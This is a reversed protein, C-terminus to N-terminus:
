SFTGRPSVTNWSTCSKYICKHEKKGEYTAVHKVKFNVTNNLKTIARSKKLDLTHLKLFSM